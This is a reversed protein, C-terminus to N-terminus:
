IAKRFNRKADTRVCQQHTLFRARYAKTYSRIVCPLNFEFKIQSVSITTADVPGLLADKFDRQIFNM